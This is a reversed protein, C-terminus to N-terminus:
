ANSEVAPIAKRSGRESAHLLTESVQNGYIVWGPQTTRGFLELYPGPSNREVMERFEHPKASHRGRRVSKWSMENRTNFRKANGRIGLLLFEHSVRWYNGIGMQPKVWVFTSRYEFGWADIVEFAQRLFGNTTWLLLHADKAALSSVPMDCLEAITMTQYHDDTAARTAQNGYRWPPDAYITGYQQGSLESLDEIVRCREERETAHSATAFARKLSSGLAVLPTKRILGGAQRQRAIAELFEKEPIAALAQWRSSDIKSVGLDGLVPLASNGTGQGGKHLPTVMLLEGAKREAELEALTLHNRQEVTAKHTANLLEAMARVKARLTLVDEVTRCVALEARLEDLKALAYGM